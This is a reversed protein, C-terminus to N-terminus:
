ENDFHKLQLDNDLYGNITVDLDVDWGGEPDYTKLYCLHVLLYNVKPFAYFKNIELVQPRFKSLFTKFNMHQFMKEVGMEGMEFELEKDLTILNFYLYKEPNDKKEFGVFQHHYEAIVPQFHQTKNDNLTYKPLIQTIRNVSNLGERMEYILNESVEYLEVGLLCKIRTFKEM